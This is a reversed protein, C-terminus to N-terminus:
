PVVGIPYRRRAAQFPRVQIQLGGVGFEVRDTLDRQPPSEGFSAPEGSGIATRVTDVRAPGEV